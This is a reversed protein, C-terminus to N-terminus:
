TAEGALPTNNARCPRCLCRGDSLLLWGNRRARARAKSGLEDTAEFQSRERDRGHNCGVGDCYLHLDYCGVIM